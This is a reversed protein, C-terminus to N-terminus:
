PSSSPRRRCTTTATSRCAPRSTSRTSRRRRPARLGGHRRVAVGVYQMHALLEELVQPDPPAGRSRARDGRAGAGPVGRRDPGAAVRRRAPLAGAASGRARPQVLAPLLKRRALDGTVGFIVLSTPPVPLRELGEVLPNERAEEHTRVVMEAGAPEDARHRPRRVARAARGARPAHLRGRRALLLPRVPLGGHRADPRRPRDLRGAGLAGRGLREVVGRIAALDNGEQAFAREALECLWSRVVSGRNWLGAVERLEIPFKSKYMLEFGEAYAQM